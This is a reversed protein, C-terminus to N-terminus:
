EESTESDEIDEDFDENQMIESASEGFLFICDTAKNLKQMIEDTFVSEPNQMATKKKFLKQQEDISPDFMYQMGSKTILGHELCFDFLGSYRTVGKTFNITFPIQTFPRTERMKNATCTVAIGGDEFAEDGQKIKKKTLILISNVAYKLGSGGAIKHTPVYGSPDTFLHNTLFMPINYKGLKQRIVRFIAKIRKAHGGMDSKDEGAVADGMEKNDSLMGLSDLAILFPFREDKPIEGYSDIVKNCQFKFDEVTGIPFINVRSGDINREDFTSKKIAGESEFLAVVGEPNSDLFSKIIGLLLYTKGVGEEGAFCCCTNGQIGKFMDGGTQKNLLFNGLDIYSTTDYVTGESVTSAYENKTEKIMQKLFDFGKVRGKNESFEEKRRGAM